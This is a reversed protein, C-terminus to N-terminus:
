MKPIEKNKNKLKDKFEAQFTRFLKLSGGVAVEMTDTDVKIDTRQVLEFIFNGNKTISGYTFNENVEAIGITTTFAM